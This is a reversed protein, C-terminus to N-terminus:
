FDWPETSFEIQGVPRSRAKLYCKVAFVQCISETVRQGSFSSLVACRIFIFPFFFFLVIPSYYPSLPFKRSKQSLRHMHDYNELKIVIFPICKDRWQEKELQDEM